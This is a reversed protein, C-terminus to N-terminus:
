LEKGGLGDKKTGQGDPKEKGEKKLPGCIAQSGEKKTEKNKRGLRGRGKQPKMGAVKGEGMPFAGGRERGDLKGGRGAGKKRKGKSIRRDKL